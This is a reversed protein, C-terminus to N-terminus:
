SNITLVSLSFNTTGIFHMPERPIKSKGSEILKEMLGTLYKFEFTSSTLFIPSLSAFNEKFASFYSQSVIFGLITNKSNIIM